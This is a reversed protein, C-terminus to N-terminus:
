ENQIVFLSFLEKSAFIYKYIKIVTLNFQFLGNSHGHFHQTTKQETKYTFLRDMEFGTKVENASLILKDENLEFLIPVFTTEHGTVLPSWKLVKATQLDRKHNTLFCHVNWVYKLHERDQYNSQLPLTM